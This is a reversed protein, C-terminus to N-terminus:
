NHDIVQKRKTMNKCSSDTLKEKKCKVVITIEGIM